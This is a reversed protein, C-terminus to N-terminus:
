LPWWGEHNMILGISMKSSFYCPKGLVTQICHRNFNLDFSMWSALIGAQCLPSIAYYLSLGSEAESHGQDERRARFENGYAFVLGGVEFRSGRLIIVCFIPIVRLSLFTCYLGKRKGAAADQTRPKTGLLFTFSLCLLSSGPLFLYLSAIIIEGKNSRVM